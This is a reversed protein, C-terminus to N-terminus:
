FNGSSVPFCGVAPIIASKSLSFDSVDIIKLVTNRTDNMVYPIIQNQLYNKYIVEDTNKVIEDIIDWIFDQSDDNELM